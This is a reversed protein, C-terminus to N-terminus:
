QHPHLAQPILCPHPATPQRRRTPPPHRPPPPSLSLLAAPAAGPQASHPRRACVARAHAQQTTSGCRAHAPQRAAAPAAAACHSTLHRGAAVQQQQRRCAGQGQSGHRRGDAALVCHSCFRMRALCAAAAAACRMVHNGDADMAKITIHQGLPLGLRQEQHPLAFRFRRTNHSLQKIDVLTLLQWKDPHLFPRRALGNVLDKLVLATVFVVLVVFLAQPLNHVVALAAADLAESNM